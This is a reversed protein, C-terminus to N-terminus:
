SRTHKKNILKQLKLALFSSGAGIVAGAFVDSPYHVGLHLRSYGVATAYGFSPVIVYWKPFALSLSTATAFAVSTHGSPFSPDSGEAKGYIIAPYADFPRQRKITYKLVTVAGETLVLAGAMRVGKWTLEKDHKALGTAIVTVPAAIALVSVSSSINKWAADSNSPQGNISNLIRLDLDQAGASSFTLLL